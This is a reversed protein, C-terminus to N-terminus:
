SPWTAETWADAGLNAAYDSLRVWELRGEPTSIRLWRNSKLRGSVEWRRRDAARRVRRCHDWSDILLHPPTNAVPVFNEIEAALDVKSQFPVGERAWVAKQRYLRPLLPCRWGLLPYLSIFLCHGSVVKKGTTPSHRRLDAM